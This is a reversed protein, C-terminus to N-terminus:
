SNKSFLADLQQALSNLNEEVTGKHRFSKEFALSIDNDMEEISPNPIRAWATNLQEMYTKFIPNSTLEPLQAVKKNAPYQNVETAMTKQSYESFMFKMFMWAAEQNKCSQFMVLDEGGVNSVSKATNTPMVAYTDNDTVTKNQLTYFWPGDNIMMYGNGAKLGDWTGPQGNLMCKGILGDDYWKVLKTLAAISEASNIYGTAKTYSDDCYKGGLSQFFPAMAWLGTGSIGILGNPHKGKLKEAAQALEDLTKPPTSMDADKLDAKNYIAVTTNTDLPIGYYNNKWKCTNLVAEFSNSKIDNFGNMNDVAVLANLNAFQPVWTLDMRMVDPSSGSAAAQLVQQKFNDTPMTVSKIKINPYEKNFAPIVKENLVKAESNASYTHWFTITAKIDSASSSSTGVSTKAATSASSNSTCGAMSLAITPLTLFLAALRSAAKKM